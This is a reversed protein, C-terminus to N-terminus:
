MDLNVAFSIKRSTINGSYDTATIYLNNNGEKYVVDAKYYGSEDYLDSFYKGSITLGNKSLDIESFIEDIVNKGNLTVNLKYIGTKETGTISDSIDFLLPYHKTLRIKDKDRITFYKDDVRIYVNRIDPAKKDPIGPCLLFPNASKESEIQLLSFHLHKGSSHGTNGIEGLSDDKGYAEKWVPSDKLHMYISYYGDTHKLIKYNGAGPYNELPFFSKDWLFVLLGEKVPYVANNVSVVDIGDHFHDGRSEGFTSTIRGDSVPWSFSLMLLLLIYFCLYYIIRTMMNYKGINNSKLYNYFGSAFFLM